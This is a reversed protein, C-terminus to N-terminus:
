DRILQGEIVVTKMRVLTLSLHVALWEHFGGSQTVRFGAVRDHGDIVSNLMEAVDPMSRGFAGHAWLIDKSTVRFPTVKSADLDAPAAKALLPIAVSDLDYQLSMCGSFVLMWALLAYKMAHM